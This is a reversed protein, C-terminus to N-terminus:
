TRSPASLNMFSPRWVPVRPPLETTSPPGVGASKGTSPGATKSLLRTREQGAPRALRRADVLGPVILKILEFDSKGVSGARAFRRRRPKDVAQEAVQEDIHCAARM